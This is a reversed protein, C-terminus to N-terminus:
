DADGASAAEQKTPGSASAGQVGSQERGANASRESELEAVQEALAQYEDHMDLADQNLGDDQGDYVEAIDENDYEEPHNINDLIGLQQLQQHSYRAMIAAITKKVPVYDKTNTKSPQTFVRGETYGKLDTISRFPVDSRTRINIEKKERVVVGNLDMVEPIEVVKHVFVNSM